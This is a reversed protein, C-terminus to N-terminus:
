TQTGDEVQLTVVYDGPLSYRHAPNKQTSGYGDGFDWSWTTPQGSSRDIYQVASRISPEDNTWGFDAELAANPDTVDLSRGSTDSGWANAVALTVIYTGPESYSHLPEAVTSHAGDGFDWLWTSPEGASHDHFRVPTGTAPNTPSVTFNSVPESESVTCESIAITQVGCPDGAQVFVDGFAFGPLDPWGVPRCSLSDIVSWLQADVPTRVDIITIADGEHAFLFGDQVSVTDPLGSYDVQGVLSPSSPASADLIYITDRGVLYVHRGWAAIDLVYEWSPVDDFGGVIEAERPHSSDVVVVENNLLLYLLDDEAVMHSPRAPLSVTAGPNPASPDTVDITDLRGELHRGSVVAVWDDGAAQLCTEPDSDFGLDLEIEAVVEAEGAAAVDLVQLAYFGRGSGDEWGKGVLARDDQLNVNDAGDIEFVLHEVSHGGPELDLMWLAHDTLAGVWNRSGSADTVKTPRIWPGGSSPANLDSIDILRFSENAWSPEGEIVLCHDGMAAMSAVGSPFVGDILATQLPITSSVDIVEFAEGAALLLHDEIWLAHDVTDNAQYTASLRPATPDTLSMLQLVGGADVVLTTGHVVLLRDWTPEDVEATLIPASPDSINFIELHDNKLLYLWDTMVQISALSTCSPFSIRGAVLPQTPNSIDIIEIGAGCDHDGQYFWRVAATNGTARIEIPSAPLGVGGIKEPLNPTGIDVVSVGGAVGILAYRGQTAATVIGSVQHLRTHGLISLGGSQDPVAAVLAAGTGYYFRSEDAIM